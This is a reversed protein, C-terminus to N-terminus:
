LKHCFLPALDESFKLMKKIYNGLAEVTKACQRRDTQENYCEFVNGNMEATTGKFGTGRPRTAGRGSVGRGGGRGRGRGHGQGSSTNRTDNTLASVTTDGATSKNCSM